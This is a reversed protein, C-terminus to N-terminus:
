SVIECARRHGGICEKRERIPKLKGCLAADGADDLGSAGFAIGLYDGSGVRCVDGHDEGSLTVKAVSILDPATDKKACRTSGNPLTEAYGAQSRVRRQPM